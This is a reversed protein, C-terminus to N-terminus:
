LAGAVDLVQPAVEIEGRVEPAAQHPGEAAAAVAVRFPGRHDVVDGGAVPQDDVLRPVGADGQQQLGVVVPGGGRRHAGHDFRHIVGAQLHQPSKM